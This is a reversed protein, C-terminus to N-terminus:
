RRFCWHNARRNYILWGLVGQLRSNLKVRIPCSRGQLFHRTVAVASDIISNAAAAIEFAAGPWGFRSKLKGSGGPCQRRPDATMSLPVYPLVQYGIFGSRALSAEM